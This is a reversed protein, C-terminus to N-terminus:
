LLEIAEFSESSLDLTRLTGLVRLPRDSISGEYRRQGVSQTSQARAEKMGLFTGQEKRGYLKQEKQEQFM